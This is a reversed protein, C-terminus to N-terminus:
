EYLLSIVFGRDQLENCLQSALICGVLDSGADFRQGLAGGEHVNLFAERPTAAPILVRVKHTAKEWKSTAMQSVPEKMSVHDVDLTENLRLLLLDIRLQQPQLTTQRGGGATRKSKAASIHHTQGKVSQSYQSIDHTTM